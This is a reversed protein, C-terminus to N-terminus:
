STDGVTVLAGDVRRERRRSRWDSVFVVVGQPM